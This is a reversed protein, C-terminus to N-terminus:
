CDIDKMGLKDQVAEKNLDSDFFSNINIKQLTVKDMPDLAVLIDVPISFVECISASLLRQHM